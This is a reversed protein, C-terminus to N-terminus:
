QHHHYSPTLACEDVGQPGWSSLPEDGLRRRASSLSSPMPEGSMQSSSFASSKRRSIISSRCCSSLSRETRMISSSCTLCVLLHTHHPFELGERKRKM